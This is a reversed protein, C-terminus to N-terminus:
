GQVGIHGKHLVRVEACVGAMTSGHVGVPGRWHSPRTTVVTGTAPHGQSVKMARPRQQSCAKRHYCICQVDACIWSTTPGCVRVHDEAAGRAWVNSHGQTAICVVWVQISGPGQVWTVSRVRPKRMTSPLLLNGMHWDLSQSGYPQPGQCPGWCCGPGLHHRSGLHCCLGGM